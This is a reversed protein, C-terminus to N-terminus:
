CFTTPFAPKESSFACVGYRFLRAMQSFYPNLSQQPRLILHAVLDALVIIEVSAPVMDRLLRLLGEERNTSFRWFRKIPHKCLAPGTLRRKLGALRLRGVQM